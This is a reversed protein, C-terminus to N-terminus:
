SIAPSNGQLITDTGFPSHESLVQFGSIFIARTRPIVRIARQKPEPNDDQQAILLSKAALLIPGFAGSSM